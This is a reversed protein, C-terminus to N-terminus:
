ADPEVRDASAVTAVGDGPHEVQWELVPLLLGPRPGETRQFSRAGHSVVVDFQIAADEEVFWGVPHLGIKPGIVYSGENLLNTPLRCRLVNPGPLLAPRGEEDPDTHFSRFLLAGDVTMLDFGVQLARDSLEIDVEITVVLEDGSLFLGGDACDLASIEVSALRAFENGPREARNWLRRTKVAGVTALYRRVADQAPGDFVIRGANLVIARDCLSGIAHMNHSVFLITRGTRAVESMKGLCRKQFDADGVALVEDIMLIDPELHAAVSFALRLYM